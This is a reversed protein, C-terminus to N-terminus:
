KLKRNWSWNCFHRIGTKMYKYLLMITSSTCYRHLLTFILAVSPKTPITIRGLHSCIHYFAHILGKSYCEVPFHGCIKTRFRFVRSSRMSLSCASWLTCNWYYFVISCNSDFNYFCILYCNRHFCCYCCCSYSTSCSISYYLLEISQHFQLPLIFTSVSAFTLLWGLRKKGESFVDFGLKAELEEEANRILKQKKSNGADRRDWRRGDGSM